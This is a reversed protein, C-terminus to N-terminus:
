YEDTSVWNTLDLTMSDVLTSRRLLLRLSPIPEGWNILYREDLPKNDTMFEDGGQMSFGSLHRDVDIPNAFELNESGRAFVLISVPASYVPASLNTL